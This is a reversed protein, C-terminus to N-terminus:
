FGSNGVRQLYAAGHEANLFGLPDLPSFSMQYASGSEKSVVQPAKERIYAAQIMLSPSSMQNAPKAVRLILHRYYTTLICRM